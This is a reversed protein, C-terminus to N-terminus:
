LDGGSLNVYFHTVIHQMWLSNKLHPPGSQPYNFVAKCDQTLNRKSRYIHVAHFSCFLFFFFHLIRSFFVSSCAFCLFVDRFTKRILVFANLRKAELTLFCSYLFVHCVSRCVVVYYCWLVGAVVDKVFPRERECWQSVRSLLDCRPTQLCAEPSDYPEHKEFYPRVHFVDQLTQEPELSLDPCTKMLCSSLFCCSDTWRDTSYVTHKWIKM